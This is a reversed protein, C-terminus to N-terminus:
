PNRVYRTGLTAADIMFDWYALSVTPDIMQLNREVWLDFSAHANLFQIGNHFCYEQFFARPRHILACM